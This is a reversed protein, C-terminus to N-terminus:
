GRGCGGSNHGESNSTASMLGGDANFELTVMRNKVGVEVEYRVTGKQADHLNIKKSNTIAGEPYNRAIYEIITQPLQDAQITFWDLILEGNEVFNAGAQVKDHNMFGKGSVYSGTQWNVQTAEPFSANFSQTVADPIVKKLSKGPRNWSIESCSALLLGAMAFALLLHKMM